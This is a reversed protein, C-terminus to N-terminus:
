ICYGCLSYPFLAIGTTSGPSRLRDKKPRSRCRAHSYNKLTITLPRYVYMNCQFDYKKWGGESIINEGRKYMYKCYHLIFVNKIM